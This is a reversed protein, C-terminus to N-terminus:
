RPSNTNMVVWDSLEGDEEQRNQMNNRTQSRARQKAVHKDIEARLYKRGILMELDDPLRNVVYFYGRRTQQGNHKAKGWILPVRKSLAFKSGEFGKVHQSVDLDEILSQDIGAKSLARKSVINLDSGTDVMAQLKTHRRISEGRDDLHETIVLADFDFNNRALESLSHSSDRRAEPTLSEGPINSEPAPTTTWLGTM